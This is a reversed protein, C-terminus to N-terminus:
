TDKSINGFINARGSPARAHRWCNSVAFQPNPPLSPPRCLGIPIIVCVMVPAQDHIKPEWRLHRDGMRKGIVSRRCSQHQIGGELEGRLRKTIVREMSERLDQSSGGTGGEAGLGISCGCIVRKEGRAQIGVAQPLRSGETSGKRRGLREM